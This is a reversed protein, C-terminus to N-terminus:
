GVPAKLLLPLLLLLLLLVAFSRPGLSQSALGPQRRCRLARQQPCGGAESDADAWDPLHDFEGQEVKRRLTSNWHNKIANDTRGKLLAAM